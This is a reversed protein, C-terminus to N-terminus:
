ASNATQSASTGGPKPLIRSESKIKRIENLSTKLRKMLFITFIKMCNYKGNYICTYNVMIYVHIMYTYIYSSLSNAVNLYNMNQDNISQLLFLFFSSYYLIRGKIVIKKKSVFMCVCPFPFLSFPFPSQCLPVGYSWEFTM